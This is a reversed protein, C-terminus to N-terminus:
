LEPDSTVSSSNLLTDLAELSVAKELTISTGYVGGPLKDGGKDNESAFRIHHGEAFNDIGEIGALRLVDILRAGTWVGTSVGAAGWNFGITQKIMNQEKRRNGCCVLTVPLSHQPLALIDKMKLQVPKPALGGIHIVHNEWEISPCAGHNRVYHLSTPTIFGKEYLSNLPAECNFPHRGTLRVLDKHRPVWQDPTDKDKDDVKAPSEQYKEDDILDKLYYKVVDDPKSNPMAKGPIYMGKFEDIEDNVNEVKKVVASKKSASRTALAAAIISFIATGIYPDLVAPAM